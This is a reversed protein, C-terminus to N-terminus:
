SVKSKQLLGNKKRWEHRRLESAIWKDETKGFVFRSPHGRRGAIFSGKKTTQLFSVTEEVTLKSKKVIEDLPITGGNFKVMLTKLIENFQTKNTQKKM